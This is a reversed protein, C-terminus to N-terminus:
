PEGRMVSSIRECPKRRSIAGFIPASILVVMVIRVLHFATVEPAGLHLTRATLSMEAVGGPAIALVLTALDVTTARSIVAALCTTFGILVMTTFVTAPVFRKLLPLTEKTFRAGLACGILVQSANILHLPMQSAPLRFYGIVCGTLLGGLLWNNSLRMRGAAWAVGMGVVLMAILRPLRFPLTTVVFESNGHWGFAAAMAPVTLVVLVVRLSQSLAVLATDGGFRDALVSMEAVGGPLSAFYATAPDVGTMKSLLHSLLMGFGISLLAAALMYASLGILRAVLAPTFALGVAIGATVQGIQRSWAPVPFKGLLLNAAAVSLLSGVSWSLPLKLATALAGGVGGIGFTMVYALFRPLTAPM